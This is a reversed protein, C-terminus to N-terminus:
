KEGKHKGQWQESNYTAGLSEYFAQIDDLYGIGSVKHGGGDISQNEPLHYREALLKLVTSWTYHNQIIQLHHFIISKIIRISILTSYYTNSDNKDYKVTMKRMEAAKLYRKYIELYETNGNEISNIILEHVQKMKDIDTNLSIGFMWGIARTMVRYEMIVPELRQIIEDIEPEQVKNGRQRNVKFNPQGFEGTPFDRGVHIITRGGKVPRIRHLAQILESTGTRAIWQIRDAADPILAMSHDFMGGINPFPQGLSIVATCDEFRNVGRSGGWFHATMIEKDAMIEDAIRKVNEEIQMHTILLVKKDSPKLFEGAARLMDGIQKDSKKGMCTKGSNQRIHATRLGPTEVRGQVHDFRREFLIEAETLSGGTADLAIIRGSYQPLRKEFHIFRAPHKKDRKFRVYLGADGAIAGQIWKLATMDIHEQFYLRKLYAPFKENDFQYLASLSADLATVEAATIGAMEFLGPQGAWPSEPPPSSVYIRSLDFKNAGATELASLQAPIIGMMKDLIARGTPSIRARIREFSGTEAQQKQLFVKLPSEDLVLLDFKKFKIELSMSHTMLWLGDADQMSEFQRFYTCSKDRKFTCRPCILIGAPYGAKSVEQIKDFQMCNNPNRGTLVHVRESYKARSVALEFLEQNLKHEPTAIAIKRSEDAMVEFLVTHTKGAGPSLTIYTDGKSKFAECLAERAAQLSIRDTEDAPTQETDFDDALGGPLWEAAPIGIIRGSEDTAGAECTNAHHCKLRGAATVYARGNTRGCVPCVKLQLIEGTSLDLARFEIGAREALFAIPMRHKRAPMIPRFITDELQARTKYENLFATWTEPIFGTPIIEDLWPLCAALEISGNVHDMYDSESMFWLDHINSLRHIHRDLVAGQNSHNRNGFMRYFARKTHPSHDIMSYDPSTIWAKFARQLEAPILYPWCFRFGRGSLFIILGIELGHRFIIALFERAAEINAAINGHNNKDEIDLTLCPYTKGNADTVLPKLWIAEIGSLFRKPKIGSCFNMLGGLTISQWKGKKVYQGSKFEIKHFDFDGPTM